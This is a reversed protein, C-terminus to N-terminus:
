PPPAASFMTYSMMRGALMVVVWLAISVLGAARAGIPPRAANDWEPSTRQTVFHLVAANAGALVIAAMKVRFFVNGYALTAFATFLMAGTVLMMAFGAFFWPALGRYVESVRLHRLTVGVLRLDVWLLTGVSLTLGLLHVAVVIPFGYASEQIM